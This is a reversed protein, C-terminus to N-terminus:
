YQVATLTKTYTYTRRCGIIKDVPSFVNKESIEKRIHNFLSVLDEEQDELTQNQLRNVEEIWLQKRYDM